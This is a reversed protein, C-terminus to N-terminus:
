GHKQRAAAVAEVGHREQGLQRLVAVRQEVGAVTRLGHARDPVHRQVRCPVATAVTVRASMAAGCSCAWAHAVCVSVRVSSVRCRVQRRRGHVDRARDHRRFGLSARWHELVRRRVSASPSAGARAAIAGHRWLLGDRRVAVVVALSPTPRVQEFVAGDLRRLDYVCTQGSELGTALLHESTPDWAVCLAESPTDITAVCAASSGRDRSWVRM